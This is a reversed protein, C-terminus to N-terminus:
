GVCDRLMGTWSLVFSNLAQTSDIRLRDVIEELFASCFCRRSWEWTLSEGLLSNVLTAEEMALSMLVVVMRRPFSAWRSYVAGTRTEGENFWGSLDGFPLGQEVITRHFNAYAFSM